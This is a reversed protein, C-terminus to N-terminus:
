REDAEDGQEVAGRNRLVRKEAGWSVPFLGRRSRAITRWGQASPAQLDAKVPRGFRWYEVIRHQGSLLGTVAERYRERVAPDSSPFWSCWFMEAAALHLEDANQLNLNVEFGLEPQAPIQVSVDVNPDAEDVVM